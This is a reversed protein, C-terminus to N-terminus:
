EEIIDWSFNQIKGILFYCLVLTVPIFALTLWWIKAVLYHLGVIFATIFMQMFMKVFKGSQQQVNIQSSFPLYKKSLLSITAMLLINNCIGLVFDDLISTGWVFFLFGFLIIAIPTYFKVLIMKFGGSILNGPTSIPSSYYRWAAGFNENYSLLTYGATITLNPLYIFWLYNKTNHLDNWSSSINQGNKFVFVFIFVALYALSPYFQLKFTKDRSTMKWGLDFGAQELKNKCVLKAIKDSFTNELKLQPTNPNAIDESSTNGMAAMKKAFSPALFKLMIWFTFIPLAIALLLMLIHPLDLIGKQIIELTNAMWMPPLLYHYWQIAMTFKKEILDFNILRPVIQFGVAFIITMVIQFGNIISKVKEESSVRLILGYLLYTLFVSFLVTLFITLICALGVFVGYSIFTFILPAISLVITFQLLYVLIHMLRAVFFTKSNVPRPLIIQNDTTDLLVSSFDTILTMCMMFLIFTHLVTMGIIIDRIAFVFLGIMLGMFSYMVLTMIMNNKPEKKANQNIAVRVRRKDMLLKTEAIIKLQEFNVDKGLFIKAIWLVFKLIFKDM